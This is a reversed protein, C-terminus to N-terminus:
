VTPGTIKDFSKRVLRSKRKSDLLKRLEGSNPEFDSESNVRFQAPALSSQAIIRNNKSIESGPFFRHITSGNDFLFVDGAKGILSYTSYKKLLDEAKYTGRRDFRVLKNSGLLVEMHPDNKSIDTILTMVGVQFIDKDVHFLGTIDKSPINTSEKLFPVRRYYPQSRYYKAIIKLLDENTYMDFLPEQVYSYLRWFPVNASNARELFCDEIPPKTNKMLSRLEPIYEEFFGSLKTVGQSRLEHVHKRLDKGLSPTPRIHAVYRVFDKIKEKDRQNLAM